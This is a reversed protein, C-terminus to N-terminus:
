QEQDGVGYFNGHFGIPVRPVDTARGIEAFSQADLVLLFSGGSASDLVVSLIVGDDEGNARPAAVFIPEGPYCGEESWELSSGDGLDIKALRDWFGKRESSSLGYVFRYDRMHMTQNFRPLECPTDSLVHYHAARNEAPVAGALGALRYRRLQGLGPPQRSRLRDLRLRDIVSADPYACLDICVDDGDEFANVNHFAYFPESRYIARRERRERDIVHFVTGQEPDWRMADVLNRHWLVKLPNLLAPWVMLIVYRPTLAFSHIYAPPAEFKALVHGSPDDDPICFVTYCSDRGLKLTYNFFERRELDYQSHAASLQGEFDPNIGTYSTLEAPELSNPDFPQLVNGDTKCVFQDAGLRGVTVDANQVARGTDPDNPGGRFQTMVKEFVNLCPDNAFSLYDARGREGIYRELGRAIHRNRYTITGDLIEFRHLVALGDFWHDIHVTGDRATPVDFVGPGNRYLTGRLWSPMSGDFPLSVAETVETCNEFGLAHGVQERAMQKGQQADM